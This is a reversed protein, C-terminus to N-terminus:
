YTPETSSTSECTFTLFEDCLIRGDRVDFRASDHGWDERACHLRGGTPSNGLRWDEYIVVGERLQPKGDTLELVAPWSAPHFAIAELAKDFAFGYVSLHGGGKGWRERPILKQNLGLKVARPLDDYETTALRDAAARGRSVPILSPSTCFATPSNESIPKFKIIEGVRRLRSCWRESKAPLTVEAHM